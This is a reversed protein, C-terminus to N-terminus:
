MNLNHSTPFLYIFFPIGKYMLVNKLMSTEYCIWDWVIWNWIKSYLTNWYLLHGKCGSHRLAYSVVKKKPPPPPLPYEFVPYTLPTWVSNVTLIWFIEGSFLICIDSNKNDLNSVASTGTIEFWVKEEAGPVTPKHVMHVFDHLYHLVAAEGYGEKQAKEILYGIESASILDHLCEQVTINRRALLLIFSVALCPKISRYSYWSSLIHSVPTRVVVALTNPKHSMLRHHYQSLSCFFDRGENNSTWMSELKYIYRTNNAISFGSWNMLFHCM